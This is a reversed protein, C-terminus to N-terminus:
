QQGFPCLDVCQVVPAAARQVHSDVLLMDGAHPGQEVM